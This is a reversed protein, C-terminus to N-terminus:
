DNVPILVRGNKRYLGKRDYEYVENTQPDKYKYKGESKEEPSNAEIFDYINQIYIEAKSVMDKTWDQFTVGDMYETIESLQEKMKKLQERQMQGDEYSKASHLQLEMSEIYGLNECAKSTCIAARRSQDPYEKNMVPDGMCRSMFDKPSEDKNKSPIPM